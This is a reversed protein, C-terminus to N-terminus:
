IKKLFKGLSDLQIPKTIVDNMGAALAKQHDEQTINATLASILAKKKQRTFVPLNLNINGYYNCHLPICIHNM